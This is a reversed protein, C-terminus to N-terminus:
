CRDDNDCSQECVSAAMFSHIEPSRSDNYMIIGDCPFETKAPDRHPAIRVGHCPFM